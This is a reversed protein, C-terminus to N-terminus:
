ECRYGKGWINKIVEPNHPDKEIKNRLNRIHVMVTNSAGYYYNEQWVSEYIRQVSFIQGRNEALLCLISFEIDTLEIEEGEYFVREQGKEIRVGSIEITREQETGVNEEKGKYVQYRRVLAKVRGVLENYSFPKPLYDDGGSSFGMTKDEVQSRASLFLVPANSNKRIEMCTQYGNLGPTMVDLIILDYEEQQIKRLAESGDSAEEVDYGEGSLLINIVERIESNDDVVLIRSKENM